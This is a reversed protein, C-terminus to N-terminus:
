LPKADEQDQQDREDSGEDEPLQDLERGYDSAETEDEEPEDRARHARNSGLVDQSCLAVGIVFLFLLKMVAVSLIGKLVLFHKQNNGTALSVLLWGAGVGM